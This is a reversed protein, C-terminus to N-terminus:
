FKSFLSFVFFHSIILLFNLKIFFGTKLTNILINLVFDAPVYVLVCVKKRLGKMIEWTNDKLNNVMLMRNIGGLILNNICLRNNVCM